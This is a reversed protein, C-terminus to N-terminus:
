SVRFKEKDKGKLWAPMRGRGSWTNGSEDKFQVNFLSVAKNGKRRGSSEIDQITIGYDNMLSKIQAIAGSIERSRVEEADQKLKAIQDQLEKFTAM